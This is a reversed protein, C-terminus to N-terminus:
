NNCQNVCLCIQAQTVVQFSLGVQRYTVSFLSVNKVNDIIMELQCGLKGSAQPNVTNDIEHLAKM